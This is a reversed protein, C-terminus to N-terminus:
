DNREKKIQDRVNRAVQKGEEFMQKYYDTFNNVNVDQMSGGSQFHLSFVNGLAYTSAGSLIGMSVGGVVSGVGPIAKILSAGARALSNGTLATIITKGLSESFSIDHITCLERIMAIQIATVSAIDVIPVPVLGGAVAMYVHNRIVKDDNTRKQIKIEGKPSEEM